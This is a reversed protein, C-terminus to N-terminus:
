DDIKKRYQTVSRAEDEQEEQRKSADRVLHNPDKLWWWSIKEPVAPVADTKNEDKGKSCSSSRSSSGSATRAKVQNEVNKISREEPRRAM